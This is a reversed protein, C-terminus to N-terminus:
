SYPSLRRRTIRCLRSRFSPLVPMKVPCAHCSRYQSSNGHAHVINCTCAALRQKEKVINGTALVIRLLDRRDYFTHCLATVTLCAASIPPSVASCGPSIGSSSYSRAPKATPTTSSFSMIVPASRAPPRHESRYPMRRRENWRIREPSFPTRWPHRSYTLYRDHPAQCFVQRPAKLESWSNIHLCRFATFSAPTVRLLM